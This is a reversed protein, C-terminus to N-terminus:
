WLYWDFGIMSIFQNYSKISDNSDVISFENNWFLSLKNSIYYTPKIIVITEQDQQTTQTTPNKKYNKNILITSFYWNYNKGPVLYSILVEHGDYSSINDITDKNNSTLMTYSLTFEKERNSVILLSSGATTLDGSISNYYDDLGTTISQSYFLSLDIYDFQKTLRIEGGKKSLYAKRDLEQYSYFPTLQWHISTQYYDLPISFDHSKFNLTDNKIYFENSGNYNLNLTFQNRKIAKYRLWTSILTEIDVSTLLTNTQEGRTTKGASSISTNELTPNTNVGIAGSLSMNFRKSKNKTISIPYNNKILIKIKIQMKKRLNDPPNEDHLIRLLDIADNDRKLKMLCLVINYNSKFYYKSNLKNAKEFYIIAKKYQQKTYLNKGITFYKDADATSNTAIVETFSSSLFLFLLIIYIIKM